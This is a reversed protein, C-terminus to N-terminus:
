VFCIFDQKLSTLLLIVSNSSRARAVTVTHQFNNHCAYIRDFDYLNISNVYYLPMEDGHLLSVFCM